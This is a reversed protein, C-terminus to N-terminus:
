QSVGAASAFLNVRVDAPLRSSATEFLNAVDLSAVGLEGPGRPVSVVLPLM